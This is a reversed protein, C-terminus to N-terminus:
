LPTANAQLFALLEGTPESEFTITKHERNEFGKTITYVSVRSLYPNGSNTLYWMQTVGGRESANVQIGTWARGASEFNASFKQSKGYGMRAYFYWTLRKQKKKRRRMNYIM